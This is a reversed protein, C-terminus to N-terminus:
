HCNFHSLFSTDTVILTPCLSYIRTTGSIHVRKAQSYLKGSLDPTVTAAVGIDRKAVNPFGSCICDSLPDSNRFRSKWCSMAETQPSWRLISGYKGWAFPAASLTMLDM